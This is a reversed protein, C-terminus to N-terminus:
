AIVRLPRGALFAAIDEVVDGFWKAYMQRTVYGLHPTPVVNRMTRFPHNTELPETDYVDVAYGAITNRRLADLLAATDVIPGRSTNVLWATSQMAALETAGFSGRSADTLPVHITVIDSRRLLQEKAVVEVPQGAAREATLRPSWALVRMGFAAGIRAVEAGQRGLGIVGLTEGRLTSGLGRQWGGDRMSEIELDLRRAATLILGWTLEATAGETTGTGCVVVGFRRAAEIDISANAAGTTVLLRLEPLARLLSAPFPTRERMAVIVEFGRLTAVREAESRMPASFCVLEPKGPLVSWDAASSAVRQYDDLIAIRM